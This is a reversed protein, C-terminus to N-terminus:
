YHEHDNNIMRCLSYLMVDEISYKYMNEFAETPLYFFVISYHHKVIIMNYRRKDSSSSM